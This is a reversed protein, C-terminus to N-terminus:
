ISQIKSIIRSLLERQNEPPHEVARAPTNQNVMPQAPRPDPPVLQVPLAQLQSQYTRELNKPNTM